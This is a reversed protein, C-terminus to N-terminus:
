RCSNLKRIHNQIMDKNLWPFSEKYDAVMQSLAGYPIKGKNNAKQLGLETTITM